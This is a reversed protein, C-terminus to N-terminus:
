AAKIENNPIISKQLASLSMTTYKVIIAKSKEKAIETNFKKEKLWTEINGLERMEAQGIKELLLNFKESDSVISLLNKEFKESVKRNLEPDSGLILVVRDIVNKQAKTLTDKVPESFELSTDPSNLSMIFFSFISSM